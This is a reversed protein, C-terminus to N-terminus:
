REEAHEEVEMMLAEPHAVELALMEANKEGEEVVMEM